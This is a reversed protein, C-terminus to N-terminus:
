DINKLNFVKNIYTHNKSNYYICSTFEKNFAQRNYVNIYRVDPKIEGGLFGEVIMASM